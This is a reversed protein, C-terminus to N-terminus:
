FLFLIIAAVGIALVGEILGVNVNRDRAIEEAIRANPLLAADTIWRLILLLILGAIADVAFWVLNRTWGVFEGSIAKLMIVALATLTMGFAAGAALNGSRVEAGLSYGAMRAYIRGAVLLACQGLVFVGLATLITGGPQRIAGALIVGTALYGGCELAGAAVNRNTRIEVDNHVDAILGRDLLWRSCNLAIVGGLAWALDQGMAIFVAKTGSDIPLPGASVAAGLYVLVVAAYYGAMAIGFAPNDRATMEQDASYPSLFALAFKAIVLVVVGLVVHVFSLAVASYDFSLTDM